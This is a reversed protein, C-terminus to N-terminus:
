KAAQLEANLLRFKENELEISKNKRLDDVMMNIGMGLADLDDSENSVEVQVSYDGRAVKIISDIFENIREESLKEKM